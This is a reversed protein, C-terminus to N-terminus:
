RIRLESLRAWLGPAREYRWFSWGNMPGAPRVDLRLLESM